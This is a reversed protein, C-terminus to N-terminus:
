PVRGLIGIRGIRDMGYGVRGEPAYGPPPGSPARARLGSILFEYLFIKM